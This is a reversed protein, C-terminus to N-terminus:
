EANFNEVIDPYHKNVEYIVDDDPQTMVDDSIINVAFEILTQMDWSDVVRNAYAEVISFIQENTYTM